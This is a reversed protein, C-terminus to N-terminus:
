RFKPLGFGSQVVAGLLCCVVVLCYAAEHIDHLLCSQM